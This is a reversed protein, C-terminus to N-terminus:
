INCSVHRYSQPSVILSPLGKLQLVSKNKQAVDVSSKNWLLIFIGSAWRVGTEGVITKNLKKGRPMEVVICWDQTMWPSRAQCELIPLKQSTGHQENTQVGLQFMWSKLKGAVRNMNLPFDKSMVLSSWTSGRRTGSKVLGFDSLSIKWWPKLLVWSCCSFLESTSCCLRGAQTGTLHHCHCSASEQQRDSWEGSRHQAWLVAVWTWM